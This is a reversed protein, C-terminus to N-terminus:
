VLIDAKDIPKNDDIYTNVGKEYKGGHYGKTYRVMVDEFKRSEIHETVAMIDLGEQWAENVRFTNNVQGDSFITHTHLDAKYVNYGGVQPIVIEQRGWVVYDASYLIEPNKGDQYYHQAFATSASLLLGALIITRKM